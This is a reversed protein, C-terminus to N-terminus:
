PATYVLYLAALIVLIGCVQNIRKTGKSQADWQLFGQVFGAFTGCFVLVGVHGLAYAGLIALSRLVNSAASKLVLMLIPASYALTCPGLAMGSLLGLILAGKLGKRETRVASTMGPLKIVDLLHLGVLLFVVAVFYTTYRALDALLRGATAVALGVVALNALVGLGFCLSILFARRTTINEQSDVFGVVLPIFVLSCPSLLVSMMGWLLSAGVVLGGSSELALAVSGILGSM